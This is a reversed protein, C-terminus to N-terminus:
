RIRRYPNLLQHVQTMYGSEAVRARRRDLEVGRLASLSARYDGASMLVIARFVPFPINAVLTFGYQARIGIVGNRSWPLTIGLVIDTYPPQGDGSLLAYKDPDDIYVFVDDNVELQELLLFEDPVYLRNGDRVENEDYNRTQNSANFSRGCYREVYAVASSLIVALKADDDTYSDAIGLEGKVQSLTPYAM